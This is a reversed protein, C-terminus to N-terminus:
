MWSRPTEEVIYLINDILCYGDQQMIYPIVVSGSALVLRVHCLQHKRLFISQKYQSQQVKYLPFIKIAIGIAGSRLYFYNNDYAYGWRRWRLYIVLTFFAFLPSILALLLTKDNIYLFGALLLYLPLLIYGINRLLYRKSIAKFTIQQLQNDPYADDILAQCQKETVSPVIIKNAYASTNLKNELSQNQEFRVNMRKFLRDLWDQQRIVMQLRSLKMTVEQKTLLGSRRIYRDGIKSLTFNYFSLVAGLISLLSIPVLIILTLTFAYFGIQWWPKDNFMLIQEINIGLSLLWQTVYEAIEDFFPALGGLFIWVRNNSLGHLILDFLARTNLIREQALEPKNCPTTSNKTANNLTSKQHNTLIVKKLQEADHLNLAVINAEQKHSGATDLLLCVVNFPRYFIPQELKINQIREFPLNIHKKAFVGSRIELNNNYIRFKFFYYKLFVLIFILCLVALVIPLWLTPNKVIHNYSVYLAPLLYVFNSVLGKIFKVLFYLLAIPSVRQWSNITTIATTTNM